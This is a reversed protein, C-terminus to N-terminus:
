SKRGGFPPNGDCATPRRASFSLLSSSFTNNHTERRPSHQTYRGDDNNATTIRHRRNELQRPRPQPAACSSSAADVNQIITTQVFGFGCRVHSKSTHQSAPPFTHQQVHSKRVHNKRQLPRLIWACASQQPKHSQARLFSFTVVKDTRTPARPRAVRTWVCMKQLVRMAESPRMKESRSLFHLCSSLVVLVCPPPLLCCVRFNGGACWAAAAHGWVFVLAFDSTKQKHEPQTRNPTEFLEVCFSPPTWSRVPPSHRHPM